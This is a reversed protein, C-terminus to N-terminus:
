RSAINLAEIISKHRIRDLAVPTGPTAPTAPAPLTWRFADVNERGDLATEVIMATASDYTISNNLATSRAARTGGTKRYTKKGPQRRGLALVTDAKALTM